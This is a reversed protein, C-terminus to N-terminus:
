EDPWRQRLKDVVQVCFRSLYREVPTLLFYFAVGAATCILVSLLAMLLVSQGAFFQLIDKYYYQYYLMQVFFIHYSAKGLIPLIPIQFRIHEILIIFGFLFPVCWFAVLMSTSTWYQFIKERYATYTTVYLYLFGVIVAPLCWRLQKYLPTSFIMNKRFGFYIGCAILFTYRFIFLRYSEINVQYMQVTIEYLLNFLFCLVLGREPKNRMILYLVPFFFVLQMMVPYYYSGQGWGGTYLGRINESLTLVNGHQINLIVEWAFIVLFPVTLRVIKKLIDPLAYLEEFQMPSNLFHKREIAGCWNIGTVVMFIPVAMNILFPFIPHMRNEPTWNAHTFVVMM